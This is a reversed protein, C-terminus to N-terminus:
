LFEYVIMGVISILSIMLGLRFSESQFTFLVKHVGAPVLVARFAYDAKFINTEKKDIYAKWGPYYTDSLFLLAPGNTKTIFDAAQSKYSKLSISMETAMNMGKLYFYKNELLVTTKPNFNNSFFKKGFQESTTYNQVKNALFFRPFVNNNKYIKWNDKNYVLPYVDGPFVKETSLNELRDTIYSIGLFNIIKKIYVSQAFDGAYATAIIADSRTQDDFANHIKGDKSSRIFEGYWKPYLPDYGDPSYFGLQTAFNAEIRASGIGWIRGIGSNDKLYSVVSANPFVLQKPVIPIFKQFARWSNFIVLFFIFIILYNKLRPSFVMIGTLVFGSFLFSFEYLTEKFAIARFPLRYAIFSIVGFIIVWTVVLIYFKKKINTSLFSDLGYGSLMSLSFCLLFVMLNSSSSSLFPLQFKYIIATLPNLTIFIFILVCAFIYFKAYHPLKKWNLLTLSSFFLPLTGISIVNGVYTDNLVYNKTAPNGFFDPVVLMVLQWPQILIKQVIESYPHSSRAAYYILEMGPIVQVSAIGFSIISLVVVHRNVLKRFLSYFFVFIFLYGAIQPHGAFVISIVTFIFLIDLKLSKRERIHELLLLIFPLWLIVKGITNYELWVIMFSCFGYSIGALFAGFVSLKIKKAYLYTFVAALLPQLFVLVSWATIQPLFFYLLSFPYLVASQFNAFLPSGSFNYPNWLPFVGQKIQQIAFTKWPYLQRLTDFFQAKNPYTGPGYGLYSYTKWPTYEAILLDGPFPVYGLLFMKYFFAATITFFIFSILIYERIKM